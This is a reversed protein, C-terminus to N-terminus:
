YFLRFALICAICLNKVVTNSILAFYQFCTYEFSRLFIIAILFVLCHHIFIYCTLHSESPAWLIEQSSCHSPFISSFFCAVRKTPITHNKVQTGLSEQIKKGYSFLFCILRQDQVPICQQSLSSRTDLTLGMDCWRRSGRESNARRYFPSLSKILRM